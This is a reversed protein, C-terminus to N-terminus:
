SGPRGGEPRPRAKDPPVTSPSEAPRQETSHPGPKAEGALRWATQFWARARDLTFSDKSTSALAVWEAGLPSRATDPTRLAAAVIESRLRFSLEVGDGRAFVVGAYDYEVAQGAERRAVGDLEVALKDIAEAPSERAADRKPDTM